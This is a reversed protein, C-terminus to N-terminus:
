GLLPKVASPLKATAALVGELVKQVAALAQDHPPHEDGAFGKFVDVKNLRTFRATANKKKKFGFEEPTRTLRDFLRRRLETDKMERLEVWFVCWNEGFVFRWTLWSCLDDNLGIPALWSRWSQPVFDIRKGTRNIIHWQKPDERLLQEVEPLFSSGGVGVREFILDLAQRHNKYVRQCLEDIQKDDMLRTGVLNLYHDVFVLVDDGIAARHAQRVRSFVRHLDAYSYCVWDGDSAEVGDPTLFVCLPTAGPFEAAVVKKYKELQGDGESADIKNEIAIVFRPRDCTILLDIHNWERRMQVGQLAVGDLDVPSLPRSELPSSKLLDMLLASLFLDGTGHSEAPDLLWALFNSHRIEARAIGLADFVNFRGILSELALLDDNEVVFHEIAQLPSLATSPSDPRPTIM